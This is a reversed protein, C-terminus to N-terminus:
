NTSFAYITTHRRPKGPHVIIDGLGPVNAGDPYGECELCFGGHKTYGKGSKGVLSGDLAVGSYFQVCDETTLVGMVRGSRPERVRAAPLLTTHDGDPRDVFYLDGHAGLVNPLVEGIRRPERFDGGQVVSEHRGLLTMAADTPAFTDAFIRLEHDTVPGTGEGALNFYSHHTLSAPTSRDSSVETEFIFENSATLTFTVAAKVNGPYGEDGDPSELLLRVSDAGDARSVPEATWLKKDFGVVGGHLHNPPDNLALAYERGDIEFRGGTIRGAVRGAIVGFYPHGALYPELTDFGLVVDALKGERDPVRLHTVIGGYDIVELSAGSSNQLRWSLVIRGDPLAGFERSTPMSLSPFLPPSQCPPGGSILTMAEDEIDFAISRSEVNEASM